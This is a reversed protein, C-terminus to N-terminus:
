FAKVFNADSFERQLREMSSEDLSTFFKLVGNTPPEDAIPNTADMITKGALNVANAARLAAQAATGKVALVIVEGFKASDAFSGIQVTSNQKAWEALKTATRTGLMVDHGNVVLGAALTTAVDGSGLVGVKM